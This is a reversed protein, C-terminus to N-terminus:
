GQLECATVSPVPAVARGQPTYCVATDGHRLSLSRCVASCGDIVRVMIVIERKMLATESRLQAADKPRASRVEAEAEGIERVASDLLHIARELQILDATKCADTAALVCARANHIRDSATLTQM